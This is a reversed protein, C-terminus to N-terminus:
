VHIYWVYACTDELITPFTNELIVQWSHFHSDFLQSEHEDVYLHKIRTDIKFLPLDVFIDPM